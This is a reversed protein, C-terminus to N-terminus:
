DMNVYICMKTYFMSELFLILPTKLKTCRKLTEKLLLCTSARIQKQKRETAIRQKSHFVHIYRQRVPNPTAVVAGASSDATEGKIAQTHNTCNNVLHFLGVSKTDSCSYKGQLHRFSDGSSGPTWSGVRLVM